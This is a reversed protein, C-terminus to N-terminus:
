EKLAEFISIIRVGEEYGEPAYKSGTVQAAM